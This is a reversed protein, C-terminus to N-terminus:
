DDISSDDQKTNSMLKEKNKYIDKKKSAYEKKFVFDQGDKSYKLLPDFVYNVTAMDFPEHYVIRNNKGFEQDIKTEFKHYQISSNAILSIRKM